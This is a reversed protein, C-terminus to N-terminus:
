NELLLIVLFLDIKQWLYSQCRRFINNIFIFLVRKAFLLNNVKLLFIFLSLTQLPYNSVDEFWNSSGQLTM